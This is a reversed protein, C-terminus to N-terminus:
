RRPPSPFPWRSGSMASISCRRISRSVPIRCCRISSRARGDASRRAARVSQLDAPHLSPFGVSIWSQVALRAARLDERCATTPLAGRRRRCDRPHAGLAAHLRRSQGLRRRDQLHLPKASHSNEVVNVVSFDSVIHAYVLAGFALVVFLFQVLAVSPATAMLREDRTAIGWFPVVCNFLALALALVLAYHGTEVIM